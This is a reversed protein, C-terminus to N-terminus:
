NKDHGDGISLTGLYDLTRRKNKEKGAFTKGPPFLNGILGGVIFDRHQGLLHVSKGYIV